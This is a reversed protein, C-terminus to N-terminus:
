ADVNHCKKNSRKKSFRREIRSTPKDPAASHSNLIFPLRAPTWKSIYTAVPTKSTSTTSNPCLAQNDIGHQSSTHWYKTSQWDVCCPCKPLRLWIERATPRDNPDESLMEHIMDLPYHHDLDSSCSRHRQEEILMRTWDNTKKLTKHFSRDGLETRRFDEFDSLNRGSIWTAIETFICGLSWIDSACLQKRSKITEPAAYEPTVQVNDTTPIDDFSRFRCSGFDAIFFNGGKILINAPKIDSHCGSIPPSHIYNLAAAMCIMGRMLTRSRDMFLSSGLSAEVRLFKSLDTDAVPAMLLSLCGPHIYSGLLEVIHPHRLTKMVRVENIFARYQSSKSNSDTRVITKLAFTEQSNGQSVEFVTGSGGHGLTRQVILSQLPVISNCARELSDPFGVQELIGDQHHKLSNSKSTFNTSPFEGGADGFSSRGDFDQEPNWDFDNAGDGADYDGGQTWDGFDDQDTYGDNDSGDDDDDSSDDELESEDLFSEFDVHSELKHDLSTCQHSWDGVNPAARSILM